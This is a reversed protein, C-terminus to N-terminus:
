RTSRHKGGNKKGNSKGISITTRGGARLRSGDPNVADKDKRNPYYPKKEKLQYFLIGHIGRVDKKAIPRAWINKFAEGLAKADGRAWVEDSFAVDQGKPFILAFEFDTAAFIDYVCNIAGDIVQINKM